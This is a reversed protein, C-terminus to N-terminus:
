FIVECSPLAYCLMTIEEMTLPNGTIRLTRLSSLGQLAQLSTIHNFSLDLQEISTLTSLPTLDMISNYSLNLTTITYRSESFVLPYLNTIQNVSLDVSSLQSLQQIASIDAIAQGVLYLNSTESPVAHGDFDIDYSLISHTIQCTPLWSKLMEIMPRTLAPNDTITLSSLSTLGQLYQLDGDGMGTDALGLEYVSRLRRLGSFDRIPNGDLYLTGLGSMMTLASTSSIYNGSANLFSLTSIGMLPRLDSVQNRSIDLWQLYPMNMLPSLDSISNGSLNLRMINQCGALASIDWIGMDSLDLETVDSSFTVGGFSIEQTEQQAKESHIACSPLARSLEALQSETIEIGKISLSKLNSMAYLPSFDRIPNNDLYLTRLSPLYALPRLDMIENGSLNLTVLGGLSSLRSIDRLMNDAMSLSDIAYLQVVEALASDGLSLGDLVLRTTTIPYDKGAVRVTEVAGENRRMAEVEAIRAAVAPKNYNMMRLVELTKTYNGQAQYCDAMLQLCEETQQVSAAKRLMALAGDYDKNFFMQQAQNMYDNYSRNDSIGMLVVAMAVVFVAALLTCILIARKKNTRRRPPPAARPATRRSRAPTGASRAPTQHRGETMNTKM